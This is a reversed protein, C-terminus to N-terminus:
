DIYDDVNIENANPIIPRMLKEADELDMTADIGIRLSKMGDKAARELEWSQVDPIVRYKSAKATRNWIAWQVDERNHVDIDDDVVIVRKILRSSPGLFGHSALVRDIIEGPQEDSQKDIAITVHALTGMNPEFIVDIDKAEPVAAMAAAAIGRKIGYVAVGGLTNHEPNKGAVIAYFMADNRHTITTVQTTPATEPGYQDVFEGLMNEVYDSFDVTGEIIIEASAPVLLDSDQCKVLEIPEGALGGAIGYECVNPPLKCAAAVLMAPPVGLAIAIPMPKGTKKWANYNVLLDSMSSANIVFRDKGTILTRYVGINLEGSEPHRTIGIAGTIFAGSDHEFFTPVPLDKLNIQDGKLINEQTAGSERVVPEIPSTKASEIRDDFDEHTFPETGPHELADGFRQLQNYLGGVVPFKADKVNKFYYARRSSEIPHMVGALEQRRDVERSVFDIEGRDKLLQIFSRFDHM